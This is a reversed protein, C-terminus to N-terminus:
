YKLKIGIYIERGHVPGYAYATDFFDSFGVPANPDNFGVLPSFPQIYNEINQVGGYIELGSKSFQKSIQLNNTIFTESRTPRAISLPMGNEDLDFVEPLAMPGTGNMTWAFTLGKAKWQYNLTLVSTWEPAFEIPSTLFVDEHDPETQSVVQYNFGANLSIPRSFQHNLTAAVGRTRAYGDTNAYIIKGPASYDPIIKNTFYTYNFDLDLSGQGNGLIYIHNFNLSANYSREPLLREAIEVSRQGTVFAHDETFLNVIRFGTGLNLRFTSWTDPKYKINLRPAPILGHASYHDLRLGMLVDINSRIAWQDQVFVGPIYQQDPQNQLEEEFSEATAVTNDDYFQYRNSMGFIIDHKGFRESLTLNTFAIHQQAAYYDSGYYSDQDHTTFSYDLKLALETDFEYTGFLEARNTYISEGYIQDSGRLEKYARDQLYAEVGNRRDEYYYKGFVTFQKGSPRKLSWKSFLSLRDMNIIDSFYDGNVDDFNNVYAYNLGIFSNWKKLKPSFTLSGFSELHSTGMIDLAVLPQESPDKTIVNIVGAVAESGYLTSSPGKIVEFRDIITTPIGNLGYVSALNGYIPTGDMLIATYPGPLGNISISNTYCVGCAVVEEVGNVLRIGEVLNTPAINKELFRGTIVEVKVPSDSLFTEKMTGTVVVEQLGLIDEKITIVGLDIVEKTKEIQIKTRYSQYGLVSIQLVYAGESLDSIEFRGDIDTVTGFTTGELAVNAFEVPLADAEVTGTISTQAIM